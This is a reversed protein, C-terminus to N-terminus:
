HEEPGIFVRDHLAHSITRAQSAQIDPLSGCVVDRAALTPMDTHLLVFSFFRLLLVLFYFVNYPFLARFSSYSPIKSGKYACINSVWKADM